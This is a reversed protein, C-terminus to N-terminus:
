PLGWYAAREQLWGEQQWRALLENIRQRLPEYQLGKPLVICLPAVSLTPLLLHYGPSEQQWGSLVSADGAFAIAQGAEIALRAAAYSEVPVLTATPIRDSIVAIASSGNLVAIPQNSLDALKQVTSNRTILAIGDSYYPLSFTVLRSRADSLSIQAIALDAQGDLVTTLRDRNAVPKLVLADPRGFLEQALRQAIEIELGQLQGNPQKFGLPRLNDKVAVILNGRNQIGELNEALLSSALFSMGALSLGLIKATLVTREAFM